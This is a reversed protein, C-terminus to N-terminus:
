STKFFQSEFAVSCRIAMVVDTFLVEVVVDGDYLSKVAGIPGVVREGFGPTFLLGWFLWSSLFSTQQNAPEIFVV